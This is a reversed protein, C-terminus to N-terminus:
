SFLPSSSAGLVMWLVKTVKTYCCIFGLIVSMMTFYHL